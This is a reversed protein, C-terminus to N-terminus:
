APLCHLVIYETCHHDISQRTDLRVHLENDESNYICKHQPLMCESFVVDDDALM